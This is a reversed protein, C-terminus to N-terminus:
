SEQPLTPARPRWWELPRIETETKPEGDEMTTSSKVVEMPDKLGYAKNQAPTYMHRFPATIIPNVGSITTGTPSPTRLAGFAKQLRQKIQDNIYNQVAPSSKYTLNPSGQQQPAPTSSSSPAPAAPTPAPPTYTPQYAYVVDAGRDSVGGM